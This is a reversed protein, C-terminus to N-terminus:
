ESISYEMLKANCLRDYDNKGMNITKMVLIFDVNNKFQQFYNLPVNGQNLGLKVSWKAFPSVIFNGNTFEDVTINESDLEFSQTFNFAEKLIFDVNEDCKYLKGNIYSINIHSFKLKENLSNQLSDNQAKLFFRIDKINVFTENKILNEIHSTLTVEKGDLLDSILNNSTENKWYVSEVKETLKGYNTQLIKQIIKLNNKVKNIIQDKEESKRQNEITVTTIESSLHRLSNYLTQYQVLASNVLNVDKIQNIKEELQKNSSIISLKMRKEYTEIEIYIEKLTDISHYFIEMLTENFEIYKLNVNVDNSLFQKLNTLFSPIHFESVKFDTTNDLFQERLKEMLPLLISIFKEQYMSLTSNKGKPTILHYGNTKYTDVFSFAMQLNNRMEQPIQFKIFNDSNISFIEMQTNIAKLSILAYSSLSGTALAVTKLLSLLFHTHSLKISIEKLPIQEGIIQFAIKQITFKLNYLEVKIKTDIFKFTNKIKIELREMNLKDTNNSKKSLTDLNQELNSLLQQINIKDDNLKEFNSVTNNIITEAFSVVNKTDEQSNNKYNQVRSRLSEYLPSIVVSPLSLYLEELDLLEELLSLAQYQENIIKNNVVQDYFLVLKGRKTKDKMESLLFKKYDNVAYPLERYVQSDEPEVLAESNSGDTGNKGSPAFTNVSKLSGIVEKLIEGPDSCCSMEVYGGHQGGKGGRGGSGPSGESGDDTIMKEETPGSERLQYLFIQGSKGGRGGAGGDGGDGGDSGMGGEVICKRVNDTCVNWKNELLADVTEISEGINPIEGQVGNGGSGGNQGNGGVGGNAAVILSDINEIEDALAFFVGGPGGPNGAYGNNGNIGMQGNLADSPIWERGPAGTLNILRPGLIKIKPAFVVLQFSEGPRILDQNILIEDTAFIELYKVKGKCVSEDIDSFKVVSGRIELKYIDNEEKSITDCKVTTFESSANHSPPEVSRGLHKIEGNPFCLITCIEYTFIFLLIFLQKM